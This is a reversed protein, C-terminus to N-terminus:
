AGAIVLVRKPISQQRNHTSGIFRCIITNHLKRPTCSIRRREDRNVVVMLLPPGTLSEEKNDSVETMLMNEDGVRGRRDEEM